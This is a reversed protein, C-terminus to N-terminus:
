ARLVGVMVILCGLVILMFGAGGMVFWPAVDRWQAPELDAHFQTPSLWFRRPVPGRAAVCRYLKLHYYTGAPLGVAIGVAVCAVGVIVITELSLFLASFGLVVLLGVVGFVFLGEIM